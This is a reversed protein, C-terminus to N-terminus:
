LTSHSISSPLPLFTAAVALESPELVSGGFVCLESSKMLSQPFAPLPHSASRPCSSLLITHSFPHPPLTLAIGPTFEEAAAIDWRPAPLQPAKYGCLWRPQARRQVEPDVLAPSPNGPLHKCM